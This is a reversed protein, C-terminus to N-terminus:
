LPILWSEHWRNVGFTRVYGLLRNSGVNSFFPVSSALLLLALLMSVPM